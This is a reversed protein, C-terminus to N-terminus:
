TSTQKQFKYLTKKKAWDCYILRTNMQVLPVLPHKLDCIKKEM